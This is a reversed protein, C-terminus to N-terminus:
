IHNWGQPTQETRDLDIKCYTIAIPIVLLAPYYAYSQGMGINIYVALFVILDFARNRNKIFPKLLWLFFVCGPVVGLVAIYNFLGGAATNGTVSYTGSGWPRAVVNQLATSIARLRAGGSSAEVNIDTDTLKQILITGIISQSGNRFYDQLLFAVVIFILLLIQKKLKSDVIQKFRDPQKIVFAMLLIGLGIIGTTSQTTLVTIILILICIKITRKKLNLYGQMFLCCYLAGHLMAQVRGPESYFSINRITDTHTPYTYFLLGRYSITRGGSIYSTETRLLEFLLNKNTLSLIWFAVSVVAMITTLIVFRNVFNNKDFFCCLYVILVQGAYLIWMNIGIGGSVIRVFTVSLLLFAAYLLPEKKNYKGKNNFLVCLIAYLAIVFYLIANRNKVFIMAGNLALLLYILLYHIAAKVNAYSLSIKM